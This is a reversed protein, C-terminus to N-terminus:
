LFRARFHGPISRHRRQFGVRFSVDQLLLRLLLPLDTRLSSTSFSMGQQKFTPAFKVMDEDHSGDGLASAAQCVISLGTTDGQGANADASNTVCCCSCLSRHFRGAM